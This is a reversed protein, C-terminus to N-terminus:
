DTDDLRSLRHRGASVEQFVSGAAICAAMGPIGDPVSFSVGTICAGIGPFGELPSRGGDRAAATGAQLTAPVAAAFERVAALQTWAARSEM